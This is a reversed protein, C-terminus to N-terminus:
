HKADVDDLKPHTCADHIRGSAAKLKRLRDIVHDVFQEYPCNAAIEANMADLAQKHTTGTKTAVSELILTTIPDNM